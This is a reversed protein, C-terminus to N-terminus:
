DGWGNLWVTWIISSHQSYKDKRHMQSCTIIMDRVIKNVISHVNLFQTVLKNIRSHLNLFHLTYIWGSFQVHCSLLMCDFSYLVRYYTSQACSLWKALKALHNLTKKCALHLEMVNLCVIAHLNVRFSTRWKIIFYLWICRVSLYECCLEIM